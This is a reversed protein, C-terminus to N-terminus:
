RAFDRHPGTTPTVMSASRASVRSRDLAYSPPSTVAWRRPLAPGKKGCYAATSWGPLGLCGRDPGVVQESRVRRSAPASAGPKGSARRDVWQQGDKGMLTNWTTRGQRLRRRPHPWVALSTVLATSPRAAPSQDASQAATIHAGHSEFGCGASDGHHDRPELLQLLPVFPAKALM